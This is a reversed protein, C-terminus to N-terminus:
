VQSLARRAALLHHGRCGCCGGVADAGVQLLAALGQAFQEDTERPTRGKCVPGEQDVQPQALIPLRGRAFDYLAAVAPRMRRPNQSCNVGLADPPERDLVRLMYALPTGMPTELGSNGVSLTLSAILPLTTGARVGRIAAALEAPDYFTELHVASTGREAFRAALRACAEEIERPDRGPQAGPGLSAVVHRTEGAAAAAQRALEVAADILDEPPTPYGALLLRLLGFTNTQLVDSGAAAFEDHVARVAAPRGLLWAEPPERAPDLGSEILATGIGGDWLLPRSPGPLLTALDM